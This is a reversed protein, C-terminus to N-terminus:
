MVPDGGTRRWGKPEQQGARPVYAQLNKLFSVALETDQTVLSTWLGKRM